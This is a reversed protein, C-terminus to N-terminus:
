LVSSSVNAVYATIEDAITSLDAEQFGFFALVDEPVAAAEATREAGFGCKLALYNSLYLFYALDNGGSKLPDHHYKIGTAQIEPLKWEECVLGGVQPHDFWFLAEEAKRSSNYDTRLTEFEVKSKLVFGDLINKGIDHLLGATFADSELAPNRKSAIIRAGSAVALSHKWQVDAPLEYGKMTNSFLKSAGAANIVQEITDNGLVVMAQHISSVRGSLGYYASNAIKLFKASIAQDTEIVAGVKKFTANPSAMVERAKHVVEPMPELAKIAIFIENKLEESVAITAGGSAGRGNEGGAKASEPLEITILGDCAPCNFARKTTSKLREDPINYTKGCSVCEIKM